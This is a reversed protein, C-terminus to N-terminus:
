VILCVIGYLYLEIHLIIDEWNMSLHILCYKVCIVKTEVGSLSQLQLKVSCNFKCKGSIFIYVDIM